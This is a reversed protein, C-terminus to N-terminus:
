NSNESLWKHLIILSWIRNYLFTQGNNFRKLLDKVASTKVVAFAEVVDQSLYNSILYSLDRKLWVSLPISFGWKNPNLNSKPIYDYLLEKLVYKQVGNGNIKLSEDINMSYEVLKHDLLPVRVELSNLMSSMDVKVLLDDKLYTDLDFLSQREIPSFVRPFKMRGYDPYESSPQDRMLETIEKDSFLYQEQSFIHNCVNEQSGCALVNAARLNRNNGTLKLLNSLIYRSKWVIPNSMRKAWVSSGYGMFLEDGGDGSLAVKVHERALQSVLYTPLASSDSFPQDFNSMVSEIKDLADQESVILEHHRSGISNAVSKAYQSENFKSEKFGISFTDIKDTKLKAAIASILSSDVGGSLFVGLPVDSILHKEVSAFLLEKLKNKVLSIDSETNAKIKQHLDWYKTITWTGNILEGYSGAPLQYVHKYITNHNSICGLHLFSSISSFNIELEPIITKISKIESGFAFNEGDWYYYLPKIGIRDRALTLRNEKLDYIAFAFMGELENLSEVGSQAFSELIVETDGKSTWKVNPMRGRLNQYNYVEGNYVMKYRQDASTFPQHSQESPDIISLRQHGLGAGSEDRFYTGHADPGRHQLSRTMKVLDEKTFDKSQFGAIGCM